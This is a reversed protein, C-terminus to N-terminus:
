VLVCWGRKLWSLLVEGSLTDASLGQTPFFFVASAVTIIIIIVFFFFYILLCILFFFLVRKCSNLTTTRRIEGLIVFAYWITVACFSSAAYMKINLFSDQNAQILSVAASSLRHHLLCILPAAECILPAKPWIPAGKFWIHSWIGQEHPAKGCHWSSQFLEFSGFTLIRCSIVVLSPCHTM